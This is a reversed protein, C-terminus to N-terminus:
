SCKLSNLRPTWKIKVKGALSRGLWSTETRSCPRWSGKLCKILIGKNNNGKLSIVERALQDRDQQL